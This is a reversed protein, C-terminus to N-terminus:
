EFDDIRIADLVRKNLHDAHKVIAIDDSKIFYGQSKTLDLQGVAYESIPIKSAVYVKNSDKGCYYGVVRTLGASLEVLDGLNLESLDKVM